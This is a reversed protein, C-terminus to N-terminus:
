AAQRMLEEYADKFEDSFLSDQEIRNESEAEANDSIGLLKCFKDFGFAGSQYRDIILSNIRRRDQLELGSIWRNTSNKKYEWAESKTIWGAEAAATVAAKSLVARSDSKVAEYSKYM